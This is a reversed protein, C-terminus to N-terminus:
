ECVAVGSVGACLVDKTIWGADLVVNLNDKTVPVPKLLVSTLDKGGPSKFVAAGPVDAMATGSALAVAIEGAAKGLARSDKWVSVTQTGLAVRNLAAMDGDQGSVPIGAMGQATLAAVVGGATGDNSAVVADVGNDTETLIQEMNKQANAPQWDDTYAEGVITIDGADIAAQLVEQQGGRLFDANPDVPSGKIMVYRGKPAVKLVEAAQMRGVEVNDFTLYFARPDDIMRDYGVVPVGADAAADLAPGISASDQALIILASCGQTIMGEIDALQKSASTQADASIYEAGAADLAGKIAAEDTKWREERFNSWSVCVKLDQASVTSALGAVAVSALLLSKKMGTGGMSDGPKHGAQRGDGASIQRM